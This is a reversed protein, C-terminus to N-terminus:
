GHGFRELVRRWDAPLAPGLAVNGAIVRALDPNYGAWPDAKCFKMHLFCPGAAILRFDDRRAKDMYPSALREVWGLGSEYAAGARPFLRPEPHDYTLRVAWAPLGPTDLQAALVAKDEVRARILHRRDPHVNAGQMVLIPRGGARWAAMAEALAPLAIMDGDWKLVWPTRCHGLCWNYYNSLLRPSGPDAAALARHEAGVRTVAHPYRHTEIRDPHEALLRAIIRPTADTSLNDVLVVREVLDVVSRVAADLFEAENRIRIMATVARAAASLATTPLPETTSM